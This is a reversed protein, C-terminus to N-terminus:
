GACGSWGFLCEMWSGVTALWSGAVHLEMWSGVAAVGSGVLCLRWGAVLCRCECECPTVCGCLLWPDRVCRAVACAEVYYHLFVFLVWGAAVFSFLVPRVAHLGGVVRQVNCAGRRGQQPPHLPGSIADLTAVFGRVAGSRVAVAHIGSLM